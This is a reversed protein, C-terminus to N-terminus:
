EYAKDHEAYDIKIKELMYYSLRFSDVTKDISIHWYMVVSNEQVSLVPGGDKNMMAHFVNGRGKRQYWHVSFRSGPLVEVVRGVWPRGHKSRTYIVVDMDESVEEDICGDVPEDQNIEGILDPLGEEEVFHNLEAPVEISECNLQKPLESLRMKPLNESNRPLSELTKRLAEWSSTVKMRITLPLTCFFKQLCEFVKPLQLKEIRFDAAGVSLFEIGSKLLIIGEEPGFERDQPYLKARFLTKGKEQDFKFSHYFSHNELKTESLKEQIFGKWNYIFFLNTCTPKPIIPSDVIKDILDDISKMESEKFVKALCSFLQDVANGTHGVLMFDMTVSTFIQLEVLASLFSFVFRNKNERGCNDTSLHLNRPLKGHDKLFEQILKYIITVVMNSANEYQDNNLYFLCKRKESYFGSTIIAGTIHCPLKTFGGFRKSNERFKPLDSKRNDMGDLSLFLHDDPFSVALQELDNIRRRAAGYRQKHQYKLSRCYEIEQKSKCTRQYADLASCQDCRSHSSYKSIRIHPLSRDVRQYGFKSKFLFYFTSKQVLPATVENVYIDYLTAKTLWSPLITTPEDPASQGFNECFVKCWSIFKRCALSERPKSDNGHIYQKVEGNLFDRQVSKLIYESIHVLKSLYKHCFNHGRVNYSELNFGFQKQSKLYNLCKNKSEVLTEGKFLQRVGELDDKTWSLIADSCKEHCKTACKGNVIRFKYSVPEQVNQFNKFVVEEGYVFGSSPGSNPLVGPVAEWAMEEESSESECAFEGVIQDMCSVQNVREDDDYDSAFNENLDGSSTAEDDSLETDSGTPAFNEEVTNPFSTYEENDGPLIKPECNLEVLSKCHSISASTDGSAMATQRDTGMSPERFSKVESDCSVVKQMNGSVVAELWAEEECNGGVVVNNQEMVLLDTEEVAGVIDSAAMNVKNKVRGFDEEVTIALHQLAIAQTQLKGALQLLHPLIATKYKERAKVEIEASKEVLQDVETMVNGNTGSMEVEQEYEMGVAKQWEILEVVKGSLSELQGRREALQEKLNGGLQNCSAEHEEGWRDVKECMQGVMVEVSSPFDSKTDKNNGEIYKVKSLKNHLKELDQEFEDNLIVLKGAQQGPKGETQMHKSVLHQQEEKERTTKLDERVNVLKAEQVGLKETTKQIEKGKKIMCREVEEFLKERKDMEEKLAEMEQTIDKQQQEIKELMEHYNEKALYVGTKDRCTLLERRLRDMEDSYGKLVERKSLM